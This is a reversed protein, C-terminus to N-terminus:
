RVWQRMLRLADLARRRRAEEDQSEPAPNQGGGSAMDESVGSDSSERLTADERKSARIRADTM